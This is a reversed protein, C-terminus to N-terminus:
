ISEFPRLLTLILLSPPGSRVYFRLHRLCQLHIRQLTVQRTTKYLYLSEKEVYAMIILWSNRLLLSLVSEILRVILRGGIKRRSYVLDKSQALSTARFCGDSRGKSRRKLVTQTGNRGQADYFSLRAITVM